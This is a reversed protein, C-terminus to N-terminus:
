LMVLLYSVFFNVEWLGERTLYLYTQYFTDM